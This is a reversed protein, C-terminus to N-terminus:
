VALLLCSSPDGGGSLIGPTKQFRLAQGCYCIGECSNMGRIRRLCNWRSSLLYELIQAQKKEFWWMGYGLQWLSTTYWLAFIKIRVDFTGM